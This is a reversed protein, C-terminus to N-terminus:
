SEVGFHFEGYRIEFAVRGVSVDDADVIFFFQEREFRVLRLAVLFSPGDGSLPFRSRRLAAGFLTFGETFREIFEASFM